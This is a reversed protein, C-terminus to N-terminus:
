SEGKEFLLWEQIRRNLLGQSVKRLGKAHIIDYQTFNQETVNDADMALLLDNNPAVPGPGANYALDVLADFQNQALPVNLARNVEAVATQIDRNLLELARDMTVGRPFSEGPEVLHGYGITPNGASDLYMEIAPKRGRTEHRIIFDRGRKSLHYPPWEEEMEVFWVIGDLQSLAAQLRDLPGSVGQSEITSCFAGM